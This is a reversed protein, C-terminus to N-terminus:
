SKLMREAGRSKLGTLKGDGVEKQKGRRGKVGESRKPKKAKVRTAARPREANLRQHCFAPHLFDLLPGSPRRTAPPAQTETKTAGPGNADQPPSKEGGRNPEPQQPGQVPANNEAQKLAEPLEDGFLHAL